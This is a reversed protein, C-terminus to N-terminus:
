LKIPDVLNHMPINTHETNCENNLLSWTPRFFVRSSQSMGKRLPDVDFNLQNRTLTHSNDIPRKM